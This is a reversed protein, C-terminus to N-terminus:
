AKPKFLNELPVHLEVPEVVSIADDSDAILEYSGIDNLSM